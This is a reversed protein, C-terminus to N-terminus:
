QKLNIKYSELSIISYLVLLLIIFILVFQLVIGFNLLEIIKIGVGIVLLQIVAIATYRAIINSSNSKIFKNFSFLKRIAFNGKIYEFELGSIFTLFLMVFFIGTFVALVTFYLLDTRIAACFVFELGIVLIAAIPYFLSYVSLISNEKVIKIWSIQQKLTNKILFNLRFGNIIFLILCTGFIFFGLRFVSPQMLKYLCLLSVILFSCIIAMSHVKNELVGAIIQKLKEM